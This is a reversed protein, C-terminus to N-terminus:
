KYLVAPTKIKSVKINKSIDFHRELFITKSEKITLSNMPPCLSLCLILM